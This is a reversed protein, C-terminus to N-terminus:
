PFPAQEGPNDIVRRRRVSPDLSWVIGASDLEDQFWAVDSSTRKDIEVAKLVDERSTFFYSAGHFTAEYLM